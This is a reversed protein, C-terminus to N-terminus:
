TQKYCAMDRKEERSWFFSIPPGTGQRQGVLRVGVGGMKKGRSANPKGEGGIEKLHFLISLDLSADRKGRGQKKICSGFLPIKDVSFSVVRLLWQLRLPPQSTTTHFRLVLGIIVLDM